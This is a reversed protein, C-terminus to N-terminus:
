AQSAAALMVDIAGKVIAELDKRPVPPRPPPPPPHPTAPALQALL